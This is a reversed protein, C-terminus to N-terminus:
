RRQATFGSRLSEAMRRLNNIYDRSLTDLPVVRGGISGALTRAARSSFEPQVFIVKVGEKRARDMLEALQRGGPEKGGTEVSVQHLGYRDAFYGFAPHFVFFTKGRFPALQKTLDQHLLDLERCLAELNRDYDARHAPDVKCLGDRINAALAKALVPDLWSHPDPLGAHDHDHGHDGGAEKEELRRLQIGRITSSILLRPNAAAVRPLFHAEFPMGSTFLIRAECLSALQRPTPEYTEASQGPGVLIEVQVLRGGIREVFFAHPQLSTFVKVQALGLGSLLLLFVLFLSPRFGNRNM